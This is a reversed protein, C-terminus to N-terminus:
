ADLFMGYELLLAGPDAVKLFHHVCLTVSSVVTLGLVAGSAAAPLVLLLAPRNPACGVARHPVALAVSHNQFAADGSAPPEVPGAPSNSVQGTDM